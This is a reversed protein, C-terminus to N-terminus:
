TPRLRWCQMNGDVEVMMSILDETIVKMHHSGDFTISGNVIDYITILGKSNANKKLLVRRPTQHKSEIAVGDITTIIGNVISIHSGDYNADDIIVSM